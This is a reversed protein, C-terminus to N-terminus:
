LDVPRGAYTEIEALSAKIKLDFEEIKCTVPVAEEQRIRQFKLCGELSKAQAKSIHNLLLAKKSTEEDFGSAKINAEIQAIETELLYIQDDLIIRDGIKRMRSGPLRATFHELKLFDGVGKEPSVWNIKLKTQTSMKKKLEALLPIIAPDIKANMLNLVLNEELGKLLHDLGVQLMKFDKAEVQERVTFCTLDIYRQLQIKM